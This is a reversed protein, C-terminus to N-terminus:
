LPDTYATKANPTADAGSVREVDIDNQRKM